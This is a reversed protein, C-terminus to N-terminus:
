VQLASTSSVLTLVQPVWIVECLRKVSRTNTQSTQAKLSTLRGNIIHRTKLENSHKKNVTPDEGVEKRQNSHFVISPKLICADINRVPDVTWTKEDSFIVWGPPASKLDNM